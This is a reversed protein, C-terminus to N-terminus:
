PETATNTSAGPRNEVISPQHLPEALSQAMLRAVIDFAGGATFGVVIRVPKAPYAQARASGVAGLVSAAAAMGLFDRRSAKMERVRARRRRPEARRWARAQDTDRGPGGRRPLARERDLHGRRQAAAQVAPHRVGSLFLGQRAEHEM